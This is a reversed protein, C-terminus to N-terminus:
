FTTTLRAGNTAGFMPTLRLKGATAGGSAHPWLLFTAVGGVVLVGSTVGLGLAWDGERAQSRRADGLAACDVSTSGVCASDPAGALIKEADSKSGSAGLAFGIAGGLAVVGAGVLVGSVVYRATQDRPGEPPPEVEPARSSSPAVVPTANSGAAKTPAGNAASALEDARFRIAVVSGAPAEVRLMRTRDGLRAEVFHEGPAVDIPEPLPTLQPLVHGDVVVTLGAPADVAVRGVRAHLEDVYRRAKARDPESTRADRVYEEFHGLAELPHNSKLESLALNWLVDASKLVAYAQVFALRAAEFDGSQVRTLGERFRAEADRRATDPQALAVSPVAFFVAFSLALFRASRM